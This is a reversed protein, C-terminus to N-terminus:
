LFNGKADIKVRLVKDGNELKLKYKKVIGKKLHYNILYVDKSITWGPFRKEISKVVSEPLAIKKYREITRLIKGDKDYSALIKGEPIYFSVIYSDNDDEYFDANKLDFTAVKKQLLKVPVAAETYDVKNLYKYNRAVIVIESLKETKTIQAFGESLLGIVFLIILLKKM